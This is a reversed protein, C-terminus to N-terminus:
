NERKERKEEKEEKEEKMERPVKMKVDDFDVEENWGIRVFRKKDYYITAHSHNDRSEILEMLNLFNNIDNKFLTSYEQFVNHYISADRFPFVVVLNCNTRLPKAIMKIHQTLFILNTHYPYHRHKCAFKIFWKGDKSNSQSLLPSSMSDDIVLSNTPPRDDNHTSFDFGELYNNMELLELEVDTITENALFRKLIDILANMELWDDIRKKMDEFVKELNPRTLEEVIEFNDPFKDAFTRVKDDITPSVFYVKADGTLMIDKENELFMLTTNSKGANRVGGVLGFLFSNDGTTKYTPYIYGNPSPMLRPKFKNVKTIRM